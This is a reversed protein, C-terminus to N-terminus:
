KMNPVDEAMRERLAVIFAERERPSILYTSDVTEIQVRRLSLAPASLPNTTLSVKRIKDIEIRDHMCGCEIRVEKDTLTYRCPISFAAMVLAMLVGTGIAFWGGPTGSLLLMGGMGMAFLPSLILVAALWIDVKSPYVVPESGSQSTSLSEMAFSLVDMM